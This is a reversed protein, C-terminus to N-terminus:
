SWSSRGEPQHALCCYLGGHAVDVLPTVEAVQVAIVRDTDLEVKCRLQALASDNM